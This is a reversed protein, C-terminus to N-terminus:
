SHFTQRSTDDSESSDLSNKAEDVVQSQRAICAGDIGMSGGNEAYRGTRVMMDAYPQACGFATRQHSKVFKIKIANAWCSQPIEPM